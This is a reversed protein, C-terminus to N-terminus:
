GSTSAWFQDLLLHALSVLSGAHVDSLAPADLAKAPDTILEDAFDHDVLARGIAHDLQRRLAKEEEPSV